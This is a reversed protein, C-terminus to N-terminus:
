LVVERDNRITTHNVLVEASKVRAYNLVFKTLPMNQLREDFKGRLKEFNRLELTEMKVDINEFWIRM